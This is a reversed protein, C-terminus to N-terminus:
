GSAHARSAPHGSPFEPSATPERNMRAFHPVADHQWKGHLSM